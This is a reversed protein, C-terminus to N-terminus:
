GNKRMSNIRKRFYMGVGVGVRVLVRVRLCVCACARVCACVDQTLHQVAQVKWKLASVCEWVAKDEERCGAEDCVCLVERLICVCM